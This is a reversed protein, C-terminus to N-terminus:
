FPGLSPISSLLAEVCSSAQSEQGLEAPVRRDSDSGAELFDPASGQPEQRLELPGSRSRQAEGWAQGAPHGRGLAKPLGWPRTLFLFSWTSLAPAVGERARSGCCTLGQAATVSAQTGLAQAGPSSGECRSAPAVRRFIAGGWQQLYLFGALLLSFGACSLGDDDRM